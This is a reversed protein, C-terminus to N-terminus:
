LSSFYKIFRDKLFWLMANTQVLETKNPQPVWGGCTAAVEGVGAADGAADSAVGTGDAVLV